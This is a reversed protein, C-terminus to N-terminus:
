QNDWDLAWHTLRRLRRSEFELRFDDRRENYFLYWHGNMMGCGGAHQTLVCTTEILWLVLGKIRKV